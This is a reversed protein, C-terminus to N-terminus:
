RIKAHKAPEEKKHATHSIGSIVYVVDVEPELIRLDKPAAAVFQKLKARDLTNFEFMGIHHALLVPICVKTCLEVAEQFTFNGLIGRSTRYDDRGNVPLLALDIHAKSLLSDLGTFPVCDGSHYIAIGNLRLIFGLFKHNGNTDTVVSEHASQIVEVKIDKGLDKIDKANAPVMREQPIGRSIAKATEAAPVVFRCKPNGASIAPLSGPDMHDSHAHSCLVWDIERLVEPKVPSPMMRIHPLEKGRYKVALSDSLYPDILIATSDTKILFGAQGLWRITVENAAPKENGTTLPLTKINFGSV